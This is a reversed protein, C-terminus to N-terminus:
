GDFSAGRERRDLADYAGSHWVDLLEEFLYGAESREAEAPLDEDQHAELVAVGRNMTYTGHGGDDHGSLARLSPLVDNAYRASDHFPSLDIEEGEAYEDAHGDFENYGADYALERAEWLRIVPITTEDTM